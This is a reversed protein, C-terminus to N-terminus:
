TYLTQSQRAPRLSVENDLSTEFKPHDEAEQTSPNYAEVVLRALLDVKCVASFSM